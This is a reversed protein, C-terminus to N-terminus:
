CYVLVRKGQKRREFWAPECNRTLSTFTVKLVGSTPMSQLWMRPLRWGPIGNFDTDTAGLGPVVRLPAGFLFELVFVPIGHMTTLPQPARSGGTWNDGPELVALQTISHAVVRDEWVSLDLIYRGDPRLPDWSPAMIFPPPPHSTPVVLFRVLQKGWYGLVRGWYVGLALASGAGPM